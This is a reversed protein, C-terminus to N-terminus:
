ARVQVQQRLLHHNTIIPREGGVTKMSGCPLCVGRAMRDGSGHLYFTAVGVTGYLQANFHDIHVDGSGFDLSAGQRELAEEYGSELLLGGDSTFFSFDPLHHSGAAEVDNSNIAAYHSEIMALLTAETQASAPLVSLFAVVVFLPLVKM